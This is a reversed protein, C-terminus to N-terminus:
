EHLAFTARRHPQRAQRRQLLAVRGQQDVMDALERRHGQREVQGAAHREALRHFHDFRHLLLDAQRGTDLRAELTRGLREAGRQRARQQQDEGRHHGHVDHEAHEVLAIDM